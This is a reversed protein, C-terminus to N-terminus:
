KHKETKGLADAMGGVMCAVAYFAFVVAMMIIPSFIQWWTWDELFGAVKLLIFGVQLNCILMPICGMFGNPNDSM